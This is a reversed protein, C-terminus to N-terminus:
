RKQGKRVRYLRETFGGDKLSVKELGAIERDLLGCAVTIAGPVRTGM